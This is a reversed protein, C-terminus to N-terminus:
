HRRHKRRRSNLHHIYQPAIDDLSRWYQLFSDSSWRGTAKVVDLPVGAILLETTGGIRFCHGTTRPYGLLHWIDNCRHMHLFQPKTLSSFGYDSTYSFLQANDPMNNVQLHTKLLTIPNIPASQDALIVDQGHRHTKTRPLHMICSLPNRVSRKFGSHSPFPSLLRPHHSYNAWGASAGFPQLQV